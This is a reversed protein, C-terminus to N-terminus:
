RVCDQADQGFHVAFRLSEDGGTVAYDHKDLGPDSGVIAVLPLVHAKRIDVCEAM